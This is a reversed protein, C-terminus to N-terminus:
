VKITFADRLGLEDLAAILAASPNALAMDAERHLALLVQACPSSFRSVAAADLDCPRGRLKRAAALLGEAAGLDLIAPLALVARGDRDSIELDTM